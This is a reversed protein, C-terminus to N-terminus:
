LDSRKFSGYDKKTASQKMTKVKNILKNILKNMMLSALNPEREDQFIKDRLHLSQWLYATKFYSIVDSNSSAYWVRFPTNWCSILVGLLLIPSCPWTSRYKWGILKSNWSVRQVSELSQPQKEFGVDYGSKLYSFDFSLSTQTSSQRLIDIIERRRKILERWNFINHYKIRSMLCSLVQLFRPCFQSFFCNTEQNFDHICNWILQRTNM